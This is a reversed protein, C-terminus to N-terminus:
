LPNYVSTLAARMRNQTPVQYRAIRDWQPWWAGRLVGLAGMADRSMVTDKGHVQRLVDKRKETKM